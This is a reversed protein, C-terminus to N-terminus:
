RQAYLYAALDRAEGDTVGQDPMGSGPSLQQPHRIWRVMMAPNNVLKGAIVARQGVHTLDPGVAGTAGHIGPIVHCSGCGYRSIASRGRRADGGTIAEAQTRATQNAEVYISGLAIASVAIALAVLAALWLLSSPASRDRM